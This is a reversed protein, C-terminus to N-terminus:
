LTIIQVATNLAAAPADNSAVDLAPAEHDFGVPVAANQLQEFVTLVRFGFCRRSPVKAAHPRTRSQRHLRRGRCLSSPASGLKSTRGEGSMCRESPARQTGHHSFFPQVGAKDANQHLLEAADVQVEVSASAPKVPPKLTHASEAATGEDVAAPYRYRLRLLTDDMVQCLEQLRQVEGELVKEANNSGSRQSGPTTSRTLPM